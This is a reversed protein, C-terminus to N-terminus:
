TPPASIRTGQASVLRWRTDDGRVLVHTYRSSLAFASGGFAGSMETRGVIVATDGHRRTQREVVDVGDFTVAEGRM